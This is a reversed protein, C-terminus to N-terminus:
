VPVSKASRYAKGIGESRFVHEFGLTSRGRLIKFYNPVGCNVQYLERKMRDGRTENTNDREVTYISARGRTVNWKEELDFRVGHFM